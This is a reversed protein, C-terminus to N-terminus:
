WGWGNSSSNTTGIIEKSSTYFINNGVKIYTFPSDSYTIAGVIPSALSYVLNGEIYILAASDNYIGVNGVTTGGIINCPKGDITGRIYTQSTASNNYVGYAVGLTGGTINGTIYTIATGSTIYIGVGTTGGYINGYIRVTRAHQLLCGYTQTSSGGYIDGNIFTTGTSNKGTYLCWSGNASGAHINGNIVITGTANNLYIGKKTDAYIDLINIYTESSNTIQIIGTTNQDAIIEDATIDIRGTTNNIAINGTAGTITGLRGTVPITMAQDITVVYDGLNVDDGNIPLEETDWVTTDDWTGDKTATVTAM